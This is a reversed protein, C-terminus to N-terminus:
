STRDLRSLAALDPLWDSDTLLYADPDGYADFQAATPDFISGSDLELWTHGISEDADQYFGQCFTVCHGHSLFVRAWFRSSLACSLTMSRARLLALVAEYKTAVLAAQSPEL